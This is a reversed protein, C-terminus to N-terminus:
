NESPNDEPQDGTKDGALNYITCARTDEEVNDKPHDARQNATPQKLKSAMRTHGTEIEVAHKDGDDACDNHENHIVKYSSRYCLSASDRPLIAVMLVRAITQDLLAPM